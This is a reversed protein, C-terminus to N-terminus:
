DILTSEHNNKVMDKAYLTSKEGINTVGKTNKAKLSSVGKEEEIVAEQSM